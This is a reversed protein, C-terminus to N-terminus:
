RTGRRRAPSRPRRGPRGSRSRTRGAASCGATAPARRGPRPSAARSVEDGADPRPDTGASCPRIAPPPTPPSGRRTLPSRRPTPQRSRRARRAASSTASGTAAGSTPTTSAGTRGTWGAPASAAYRRRAWMSAPKALRIAGVLGVIPIPIGILGTAIKGKTFCIVAMVMNFAVTATYAWTGPEDVTEDVGLPNASLLLVFGLVAGILVADISKRGEEGWYVDDLHFWLAFEDLALAAGVGFFAALVESYPSEPNFRFELMGSFLVLMIGWVQHHVHVGGIYIDSFGGKKKAPEEGPEPPPPPPAANKTRIMRTIWRTLAFTVLFGILAWVAPARGTDVLNERYWDM